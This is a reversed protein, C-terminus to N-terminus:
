AIVCDGQAQQRTPRAGQKGKAGGLKIETLRNM